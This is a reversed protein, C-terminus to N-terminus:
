SIKKVRGNDRVKGLGQPLNLDVVDKQSRAWNLWGRVIPHKSSVDPMPDRIGPTLDRGVPCLARHRDSVILRMAAYFSPGWLCVNM